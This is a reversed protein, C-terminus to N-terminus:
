LIECSGKTHGIKEVKHDDHPHDHSTQASPTTVFIKDLKRSDAKAQALAEDIVKPNYKAKFHALMEAASKEKSM